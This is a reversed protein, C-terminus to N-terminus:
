RRTITSTLRRSSNCKSGSKLATSALMAVDPDFRLEEVIDTMGCAHIMRVAVSTLSTPLAALEAEARVSAFSADYIAQPDKLYELAAM